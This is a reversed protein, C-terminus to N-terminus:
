NRIWTNIVQHIKNFDAPKEIFDDMGALICDEINKESTNASLSIIPVRQIQNEDEYLRIIKTTELGTLGPMQVDIIMIDFRNNSVVQEIASKGDIATTVELGIKQLFKEMVELTTAHDDVLLVRGNMNLSEFDIKAPSTNLISPSPTTFSIDQTSEEIQYNFEIEFYFSSGIGEESRIELQSNLREVIRKSIALGLGTGGYNRVISPNAQTFPEFILAQESKKIGMGTDSVSFRIIVTEDGRIIEEAAVEISGEKTFKFSNEILNILVQQIQFEDCKVLLNRPIKNNFFISVDKKSRNRFLSHLNNFIQDIQYFSEDLKFNTASLKNFTLIENLLKTLYKTASKISENNKILEEKTISSDDSLQSLGLIVNIPTRIEHSLLAVVNEKATINNKLEISNLQNTLETKIFKRFFYVLLSISLLMGSLIIALNRLRVNKITLWESLFYQKSSFVAWSIPADDSPPSSFLIDGDKIFSVISAFDSFRNDNRSINKQLSEGYLVSNKNDFIFINEFLSKNIADSSSVLIKPSIEISLFGSISKNQLELQRLFVIKKTEKKTFFFSNTKNSISKFEDLINKEISSKNAYAPNEQHEIPAGQPDLLALEISVDELQPFKEYIKNISIKKLNGNEKVLQQEIEKKIDLNLQDIKKIEIRFSEDIKKWDNIYRLTQLNIAEQEM